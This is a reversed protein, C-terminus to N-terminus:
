CFNLGMKVWFYKSLFFSIIIQGGGGLFLEWTFHYMSYPIEFTKPGGGGRTLVNEGGYLSKKQLCGKFAHKIKNM